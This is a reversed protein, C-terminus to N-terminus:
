VKIRPDLWAHIYDISSYALITMLGIVFTSAESLPYDENLVAHYLLPGMGPWDFIIAVILAGSILYSVQLALRTTVPIVAIRAAHKRLISKENVGKARATLVHDEGLTSVMAARMTIMHGMSEIILLSVFPMAMRDLLIPFTALSPHTIYTLPVTARIPFIGLAVSLYLFLLVGIIFYPVSNLILSVSLLVGERKSGRLRTVVIGLPVGIIYSILATSVILVLTYPLATAIEGYVYQGPHTFDKGWHFTFMQYLYTQFSILSFKGDQLGMSSLIADKQATSLPEGNKSASKLLLLGPNGPMLRFVIFVIMTMILVLAVAQVLKRSLLYINM